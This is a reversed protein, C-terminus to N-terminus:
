KANRYLDGSKIHKLENEKDHLVIKLIVDIDRTNNVPIIAINGGKKLILEL